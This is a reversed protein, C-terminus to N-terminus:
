AKGHLRPDFGGAHGGYDRADRNAAGSEDARFTDGMAWLLIEAAEDQEAETLDRARAIARELLKTM